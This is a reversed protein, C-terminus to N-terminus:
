AQDSGTSAPASVLTRLHALAARGRVQKQESDEQPGGEFLLDERPLEDLFRSPECAMVERQRRRRAAHTFTLTQQARTIGVYVLRREEDLDGSDISSRHPLLGEEMGVMFVHPFELGKAAHLTMLAVRDGAQEERELLDQLCLRDVLADLGGRVEAAAGTLWDLLADIHDLRREAGRPDRVSKVLWARYGSEELLDRVLAVADSEGRARAATREVWAAFRRLRELPAGSVHVALGLDGCTPLLARGRQQAYRGLSELTTPGIGRRPANVVRLFAADDDPNALLRLYAIVDKVEARDFFATGGSVHYPIQAERLATELPRSQHNGRYLLAYDGFRTGHRFRHELLASAVRRAEHAEDECRLVRLPDGFGLGSWLRKEFLHPNNAILTNAAKLIRGTSRYNQELRIVELGPFDEALRQLNEPRAGRWAYISQDDDGVVTLGRREGVLQQVLAYQAGNTDQYEDVLLYRIRERWAGLVEPHDRFLRVPRAILDDFDVANFAQLHRQYDAYLDAATNAAPDCAKAQAQEPDVLDNKWASIRWQLPAPDPKTEGGARLLERLLNATDQADFISFGSRYGVRRAERRLIRLGLTHFTSITLAQAAEVSLLKGARARMERAAKNTFTVAAVHEPALGCRQVLHAIKRTIVRTKGSGAGALVLLPGATHLVAKRQAPNLDSLPAGETPFARITASASFRKLWFRCV